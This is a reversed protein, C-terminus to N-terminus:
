EKAPTLGFGLLKASVEPSRGRSSSEADFTTETVSQELTTKEAAEEHPPSAENDEPTQVESQAPEPPEPVKMDDADKVVHTAAEPLNSRLAAPVVMSKRLDIDLLSAAAANMRSTPVILILVNEVDAFLNNTGNQMQNYIIERAPAAWSVSCVSLLVVLLSRVM